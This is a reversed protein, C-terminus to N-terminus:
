EALVFRYIARGVNQGPRAYKLMFAEKKCIEPLLPTRAFGLQEISNILDHMEYDEGTDLRFFPFAFVIPGQFKLQRLCKFFAVYKSSLEISLTRAKAESLPATQVPGLDGEAAIAEADPLKTVRAADQYFVEAKGKNLWEVNKIAGEVAKPSIDSGVMPRGANIGEMLVAGSGCFPDWIKGTVGTINILIQALKPPLMGMAMDRFPKGYDRASYADIDQVGTVLAVYQRQATKIYVFEAGGNRLQKYQASSVNGESNVFRGKMGAENMKKKIDKLLESLTSEPQGYVSIGYELREGTHVKKVLSFLPMNYVEAIKITGGLSDLEKQGLKDEHEVIFYDPGVREFQMEPFRFYLESVSLLYDKGPIIIYKSM